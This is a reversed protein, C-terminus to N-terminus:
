RDPLENTNDEPDPHTDNTDNTGRFFDISQEWLKEVRKRQSLNDDLTSVTRARAKHYGRNRRM